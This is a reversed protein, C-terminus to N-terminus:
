VRHVSRTSHKNNDVLTQQQQRERQQIFINNTTDAKIQKNEIQSPDVRHARQEEKGIDLGGGGERGWCIKGGSGSSNNRNPFLLLPVLANQLDSLLPEETM